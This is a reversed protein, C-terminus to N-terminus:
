SRKSHDTDGRAAVTRERPQKPAASKKNRWHFWLFGTVAYLAMPMFFGWFSAGGFVPRFKIALAVGLAMVAGLTLRKQLEMGDSSFLRLLPIDPYGPRESIFDRQHEQSHKKGDIGAQVM